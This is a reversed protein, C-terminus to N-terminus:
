RGGGLIMFRSLMQQFDDFKEKKCTLDEDKPMGELSMPGKKIAIYFLIYM